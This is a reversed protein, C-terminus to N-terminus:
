VFPLNTDNYNRTKLLAIAHYIPRVAGTNQYWGIPFRTIQSNVLKMLDSLISDTSEQTTMSNQCTSSSHDDPIHVRQGM